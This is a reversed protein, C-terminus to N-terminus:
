RHGLQLKLLSADIFRWVEVILRYVGHGNRCDRIFFM